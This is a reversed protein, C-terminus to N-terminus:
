AAQEVSHLRQEHGRVTKDIRKIDRTEETVAAKIAPILEVAPEMNTLRTDIRDLRENTGSVVDLIRDLKDSYDERLVGRHQDDNNM